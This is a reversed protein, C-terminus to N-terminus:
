AKKKLAEKAAMQEAEQKKKGIGVGYLIDDVFVKAEFEKDHSPGTERTIRYEITRKDVQMYEQLLTKYDFDENLVENLHKLCLFGFIEKTKIFGQDLYLAGILAEFADAIIAKNAGKQSEGRGLLIYSKLNLKNAYIVLAQERVSKARTKTMEGESELKQGYLHDSMLLELVADGLFELKENNVVDNEYAYSSHTMATIYLKENNPIIGISEFLKKM